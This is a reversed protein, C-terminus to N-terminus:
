SIALLDCPHTSALPLFNVPLPSLVPYFLLAKYISSNFGM